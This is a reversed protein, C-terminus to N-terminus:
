GYCSEKQGEHGKAGLNSNITGIILFYDLKQACEGTPALQVGHEVM